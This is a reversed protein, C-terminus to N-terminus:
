KAYAEVVYVTVPTNAGGAIVNVENLPVVKDFVISGEPLLTISGQANLAPTSGNLTFAIKNATSANHIMLFQRNSAANLMKVATTGVTGSASKVNHWSPQM